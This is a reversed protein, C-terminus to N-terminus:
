RQAIGGIEDQGLRRSDLAQVKAVFGQAQQRTVQL